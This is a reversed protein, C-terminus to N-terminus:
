TAIYQRIMLVNSWPILHNHFGPGPEDFRDLSIVLGYTNFDTLCPDDTWNTFHVPTRLRIEIGNFGKDNGFMLMDEAGGAAVIHEAKIWLYDTLYDGYMEIPGPGAWIALLAADGLSWGDPNIPTPPPAWGTAEWEEFPPIGDTM